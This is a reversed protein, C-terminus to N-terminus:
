QLMGGLNIETVLNAQTTEQEEMLSIMQSIPDSSKPTPKTNIDIKVSVGSEIIPLDAADVHIEQQNSAVQIVAEKNDYGVITFMRNLGREVFGFNIQLSSLDRGGRDPTLLQDFLEEGIKLAPLGESQTPYEVDAILGSWEYTIGYEVFRRLIPEIRRRAFQIAGNLDASVHSPPTVTIDIRKFGLSVVTDAGKVLIQPADFPVTDPVHLQIIKGNLSESIELLIAGCGLVIQRNQEFITSLQISTIKMFIRIVKTLTM